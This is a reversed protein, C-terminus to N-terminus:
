FYVKEMYDDDWRRLRKHQNWRPQRRKAQAPQLRSASTYQFKENGMGKACNSMSTKERFSVNIPWHCNNKPHGWHVGGAGAFDEGSFVKSV